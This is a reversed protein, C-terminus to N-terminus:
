AHLPNLWQERIEALQHAFSADIRKGAMCLRFGGILKPNVQEHLEIQNGSTATLLAILRQRTAANLPTASEMEVRMLRQAKRYRMLYSQVLFPLFAERHHAIVVEMFRRYLDCVKEGGAILLLHLKQKTSLVPNSLAMLLAPEQRLQIALLQFHVYLEKECGEEQAQAFLAKAYRASLIGIDM